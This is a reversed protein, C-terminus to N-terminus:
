ISLNHTNRWNLMWNDFIYTRRMHWKWKNNHHYQLNHFTLFENENKNQKMWESQENLENVLTLFFELNEFKFLNRNKNIAEADDPWGGEAFAMWSIPSWSNFLFSFVKKCKLVLATMRKSIMSYKNLSLTNSPRVMQNWKKNNDDESKLNMKTELTKKM